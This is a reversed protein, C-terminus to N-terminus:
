DTFWWFPPFENRDTTHMLRSACQRCEFVMERYPEARMQRQFREMRVLRLEYHPAAERGEKVQASCADCRALRTLHM